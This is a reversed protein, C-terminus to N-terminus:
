CNAMKQGINRCSEKSVNLQRAAWDRLALRDIKTNHRVDVLFSPHFLVAHINRAHEHQQGLTRLEDILQRKVQESTTSHDPRTEVILVPQQQGYAGIGVLASRKVAPHQNFIAEIQVPLLLGASTEVRHSKRGCVWIRGQEDLYGLDGMRHWFGDTDRIKAEATQRPRNVYERTVVEGKIVIEGIHGASLALSENWEAIPEDSIPIIRVQLGGIPTGVCVGAGTLTKAGTETLIEEGSMLTLPLAETAGYPTYIKGNPMTKAFREVVDPMVEAGFMFVHKLSPLVVQHKACYDALISWILPSGLSMTVGFTEISEALYAPNVQATKRADMDPIITTVGLAPNFLAFIYMVSLHVEGETVGMEDRMIEVQKKFIGHLYVVGKPIGTGGSTFAIAAEDDTTTPAIPFPERSSSRLEALTAGEWFLRKGVTVFRRVTRFPKPFIKRMVHALPIGILATPETEAVCQLFAKRGMGPDILVPVAGIKLLAFTVAILEVGPRVMMLTRDGQKVGYQALGYAYSDCLANLQQFTFQTFKARGRVNRGAPFVIAPRFPARAAMDSLAHSINYLM